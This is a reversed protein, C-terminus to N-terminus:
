GISTAYFTGNQDYGYATIHRGVSLSGNTRNANIAQQVNVTVPPMGLLTVTGNGVGIITGSRRQNSSLQNTAYGNGNCNLQFVNGQYCGNLNYHQGVNLSSGNENVTIVRGDDLRVQAQSGNVSLVTGSITSVGSVGAQNGNGNSNGHKCWGRTHGAPNVCNHAQGSNGANNQNNQNGQNNENNDNENTEANENNGNSRNTANGSNGNNEHSGHKALAFVPSYAFLSQHSVPSLQASGLLMALTSTGAFVTALASVHFKNM